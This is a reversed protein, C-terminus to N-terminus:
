PQMFNQIELLMSSKYANLSRSTRPIEYIYRILCSYLLEDEYNYSKM